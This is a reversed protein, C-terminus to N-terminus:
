SDVEQDASAEPRPESQVRARARARAVKGLATWVEEFESETLASIDAETVGFLLSPGFTRGRGISSTEVQASGATRRQQRSAPSPKSGNSTRSQMKRERPADAVEIDAERCLGLFLMVMRKTQSRPEYKQFAATIVHAADEAPNIREFDERYAERLIGGLLQRYEDTPAGALSRLKDTPRGHQDVLDLFRLAQKVRGFVVDPIQALRLFDDDLETPLNRSRCRELVAIVNSAAAYPRKNRDQDLGQEEGRIVLM